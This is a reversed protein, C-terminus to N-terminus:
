STVSQFIRRVWAERDAPTDLHFLVYASLDIHGAMDSDARPRPCLSMVEPFPGGANVIAVIETTSLHKGAADRYWCGSSIDWMRWQGGHQTEFVVHGDDGANLPALTQVSRVRAPFGMQPAIWAMLGAIVGCQAAWKRLAGANSLTQWSGSLHNHDTGHVHNWCVGSFVKYLDAGGTWNRAAVRHVAQNTVMNYFIYLGEESCDWVKGGFSRVGATLWATGPNIAAPAPSTMPVEAVDRYGDGAFFKARITM